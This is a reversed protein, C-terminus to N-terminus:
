KATTKGVIKQATGTMDFTLLRNNRGLFEKRKGIGQFSDGKYFRLNPAYYISRQLSQEFCKQIRCIHLSHRPIYACFRMYTM